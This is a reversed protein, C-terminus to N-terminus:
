FTGQYSNYYTYSISSTWISWIPSEQIPKLSFDIPQELEVLQYTRPEVEEQEFNNIVIYIPPTPSITTLSWMINKWIGKRCHSSTM